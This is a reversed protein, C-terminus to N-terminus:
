NNNVDFVWYIDTTKKLNFMKNRITYDCAITLFLVPLNQTDKECTRRTNVEQLIIAYFLM